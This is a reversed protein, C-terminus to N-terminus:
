RKGEQLLDFLGPERGDDKPKAPSRRPTPALRLAGSPERRIAGAALALDLGDDFHEFLEPRLKARLQEPRLTPAPQRVYKGDARQTRKPTLLRVIHDAVSVAAHRPDDPLIGGCRWHAGAGGTTPTGCLTCITM